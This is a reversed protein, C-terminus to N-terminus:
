RRDEVLRRSAPIGKGSIPEVIRFDRFGESPVQFAPDIALRRLTPSVDSTTRLRQIFELIQRAEEDSLVEITNRLSEKVCNM